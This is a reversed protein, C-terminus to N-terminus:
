PHTECDKRLLFDAHEKKYGNKIAQRFHLRAKKKAGSYYLSYALLYELNPNEPFASLGLSFTQTAKKKRKLFLEARGLSIFDEATPSESQILQSLAKEAKHFENAKLYAIGLKRVTLNDHPLSDLVSRYINAASNYRNMMMYTDALLTRTQTNDAGKNIGKELHFAAKEPKKSKLNLNGLLVHPWPAEPTISICTHLHNEAKSPIKAFAYMLGLNYHAQYNTSDIALADQFLRKAIGSSKNKMALLGADLKYQISKPSGSVAKLALQLANQHNNQRDNIIALLHWLKAKQHIDLNNSDVAKEAKEKAESEQGNEFLSFPLVHDTIQALVTNCIFFFLFFFAPWLIRNASNKVETFKLVAPM